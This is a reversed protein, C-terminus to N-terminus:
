AWIRYNLDAFANDLEAIHALYVEADPSLAPQEAYSLLRDFRDL